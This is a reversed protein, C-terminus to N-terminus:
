TLCKPKLEELKLTHKKKIMKKVLAVKKIRISERRRITARKIKSALSNRLLKRIV